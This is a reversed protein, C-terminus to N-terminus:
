LSLLVVSSILHLALPEELEEQEEKEEEEKEEEELEEKEM